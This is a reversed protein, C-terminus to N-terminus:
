KVQDVLGLLFLTLMQLVKRDKNEDLENIIEILNNKM